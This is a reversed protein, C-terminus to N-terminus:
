KCGVGRVQLLCEYCRPRVAWAQWHYFLPLVPEVSWLPPMDVVQPSRM